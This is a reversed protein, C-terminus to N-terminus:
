TQGRVDTENGSGIESFHEWCHLCCDRGSYSDPSWPSGCLANPQPIQWRLVVLEFMMICTPILWIILLVIGIRVIMELIKAFPSPLKVVRM